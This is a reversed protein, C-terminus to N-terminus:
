IRKKSDYNVAKEIIQIEEKARADWDKFIQCASKRASERIKLSKDYNEYLLLIKDVAENPSDVLIGNQGNNIVNDLSGDNLSLVVSGCMLAEIVVNGLNAYNYLSLVAVAHKYLYHMMKKDVAGLYTVFSNLGYINVKDQIENWYDRDTIQGAFYLNMPLGRDHLEKVIDLAIDQRKWKAIRAPYFVYPEKFLFQDVEEENLHEYLDVGNLMFYFKYNAKGNTLYNYVKDGKTGDNTILLFEKALKFALYELPHRLALRIKSTQNIEAALFTGYLRIGCPIGHLNAVLNAISGISGHGYVFDYKNEKLTRNVISFLKLLSLVKNYGNLNWDVLIIRSKKLWEVSISLDKEYIGSGVIILDVEHGFKNLRRLPNIFAPMGKNIEARNMIIDRFGSWLPTVYLIRM